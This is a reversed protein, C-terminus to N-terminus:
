RRGRARESKRKAGRSSRRLRSVEKRTLLRYKGEGLGELNLEGFRVRKLAVVEHGVAALMRRVQRKKGESIRLEVESVDDERSFSLLRARAPATVGDDLEVGKQLLSIETRLIRGKVHAVYTKEVHFSPHTLEHALAGDNTLMILGSSDVDLRGVPYLHGYKEPLLDLVTRKAHPDSRTSTYGVPKNLVICTKEPNLDVPVGDVSIEVQQPDVKTGLTTVVQGDVAVRGSVILDECHRRSAVGAAALVKQLREQM